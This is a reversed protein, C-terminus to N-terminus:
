MSPARQRPSMRDLHLQDAARELSRVSVDLGVVRDISALRLLRSLLQGSGCGLDIVTKVERATLQGTVSELRKEQLSVRREIEVEREAAPATEAEMASEVEEVEEVVLRELAMRALSRRNKLYRRAIDEQLPHSGLWDSAHRLLKEVEAEDVWYHKRHDLVPILVYLHRLLDQLRVSARLTLSYYPSPGWEPFQPDLPHRTAEVSYGLPAFLEHLFQEGGRCPVAPLHAELPIPTAALEPRSRSKGALASKFATGLAVSMFSSAVYPRDNVYQDLGPDGQRAAGSRVL